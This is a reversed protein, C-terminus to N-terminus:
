VAAPLDEVEALVRECRLYRQDRDPMLSGQRTTGHVLRVGLQAELRAVSKAVTPPALGPDRAARAFTGHRATQAFTLFPTLSIM